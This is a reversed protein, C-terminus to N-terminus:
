GMRVGDFWSPLPEVEGLADDVSHNFQLFDENIAACKYCRTSAPAYLRPFALPVCKHMRKTILHLFRVQIDSLCLHM